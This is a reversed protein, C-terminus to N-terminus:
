EINEHQPPFLRWLRLLQGVFSETHELQAFRPCKAFTQKDLVLLLDAAIIIRPLVLMSFLCFNLTLFAAMSIFNFSVARLPRISVPLEVKMLACITLENFRLICGHIDGTDSADASIM